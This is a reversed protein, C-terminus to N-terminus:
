DVCIIGGHKNFEEISSGCGFRSSSSACAAPRKPSTVMCRGQCDSSSECPKGADSYTSICAPIQAKGQPKWVQGKTAECAEKDPNAVKQFNSISLIQVPHSEAYVGAIKVRDGVKLSIYGEGLNPISIITRYRMKNDLSILSVSDGDKEGFVGIVELVPFDDLVPLADSIDASTKNSATITTNASDSQKPQDTSCAFLSLCFIFISLYSIINLM